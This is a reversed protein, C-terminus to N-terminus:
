KHPPFIFNLSLKLWFQRYIDCAIERTKDTTLTAEKCSIILWQHALHALHVCTEFPVTKLTQNDITFANRTSYSNQIIRKKFWSRASPHTGSRPFGIFALLVELYCIHFNESVM